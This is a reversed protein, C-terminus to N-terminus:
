KPAEGGVKEISDIRYHEMFTWEVKVHDGVKFEKLKAVIEKDFGGGDKPMGGKWWPVLTLTEKEGKLTIKPGDKKIIEGAITGKDGTKHDGGEKATAASSLMLGICFMIFLAIFKKM